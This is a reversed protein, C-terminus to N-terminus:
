IRTGPTASHITSALLSSFSRNADTSKSMASNLCVAPTFCSLCPVLASVSIPIHRRGLRDMCPMSPAEESSSSTGVCGRGEVYM